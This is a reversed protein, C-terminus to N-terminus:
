VYRQAYRDTVPAASSQGQEEDIKEEDGKTAKRAAIRAKLRQFISPGANGGTGAAGGGGYTPMSRGRCLRVILFATILLLIVGIVIGVITGVGLHFGGDDYYGEHGAVISVDGGQQVNIDNGGDEYYKGLTTNFALHPYEPDYNIATGSHRPVLKSVTDM